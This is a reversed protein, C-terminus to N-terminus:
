TGKQRGWRLSAKSRVGMELLQLTEQWLLLRALHLLQWLLLVEKGVLERGPLTVLGQLRVRGQALEVPSPREQLLQVEKGVLAPGLLEAVGQAVGVPSPWKQLLLMGQM